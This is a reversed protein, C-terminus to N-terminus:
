FDVIDTEADIDIDDDIDTFIDDEWPGPDPDPGAYEMIPYPDPEPEPGDINTPLVAPGSPNGGPNFGPDIGPENGPDAGPNIGPENGPDAGPNIGPEYGPEYGPDAGPDVITVPESGFINPPIMNVTGLNVGPQDGDENDITEMISDIQPEESLDTPEVIHVPAEHYHHEIVTTPEHQEEAKPQEEVKQEDKDDQEEGQPLHTVAYAGGAGLIAAGGAVAAIKAAQNDGHRPSKPAKHSMMNYTDDNM